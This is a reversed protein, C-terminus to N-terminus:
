PQESYSVSATTRGDETGVMVVVARGSAGHEANVVGGEDGDTSSFRNVTVEYGAQQLRDQYFDIVQAAGDDTELQCTGRVGESGEFVHSAVPETEPYVPVWDPVDGAGTGGTSLKWEGEDGTVSIVEEGEGGSADITVEQDGTKWSIRGQDLDEFDVTIEEGTDTNRVTITGEEEDVDVEELEPNLRVIMRAAALAPNGEVDFDEAVQRAKGVVFWSAVALAIVVVVLLVGCGIGIWALTGLGRREPTQNVNSMDAEERM